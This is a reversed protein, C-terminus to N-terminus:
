PRAIVIYDYAKTTPDTKSIEIINWKSGIFLKHLEKLTFAHYYRPKKTKGWPIFTDNPAYKGFSVISRGLAKMLQWFYKKQWLDWVTLILIGQPKLVRKIEKLSKQRLNRTPLHHFARICFIIDASKDKLPIKTMDGRQFTKGPYKKRAESLLNSSTDLGVYHFTKQHWNSAEKEIFQLLRGNGCGLDIITQGPRLYDKYAEFEKGAFARSESFEKSIEDYTATVGNMIKKASKEDM